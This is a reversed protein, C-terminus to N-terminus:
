KVEPCWPGASRDADLLRFEALSFPEAVVGNQDFVMHQSNSLRYLPWVPLGPGGHGIPHYAPFPMQQCRDGFQSANRLSAWHAAPQPEKWRLDGVPPAAYPISKFVRIGADDMIGALQGDGVTVLPRDGQARAFPALCAM